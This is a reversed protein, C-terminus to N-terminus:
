LNGKTQHLEVDIGNDSLKGAYIIAGDRLCDYEATELYSSPIGDFSDAEVPSRYALKGANEDQVYWKGYKDMDKSNCMPTDRYLRISETEGCNGAAPYILMQACPIRINEDIARLTVAM